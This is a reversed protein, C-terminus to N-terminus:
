SDGRERARARIAHRETELAFRVIAERDAEHMACFAVAIEPDGGPERPEPHRRVIGMARLPLSSGPLLIELLLHTGLAPREPAAMRLGAASIEVDRAPLAELPRSLSPRLCSILLDLKAELRDLRALLRPDLDARAGRDRTELELRLSDIEGPELPQARVRLRVRVRLYERGGAAPPKATAAV